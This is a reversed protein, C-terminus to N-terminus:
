KEIRLEISNAKKFRHFSSNFTINTIFIREGGNLVKRLEDKLIKQFRGGKIDKFFVLENERTVLITFSDVALNASIGYHELFLIIGPQALFESKSMEKNGSGLTARPPTLGVVRFQAEGILTSDKNWFVKVDINGYPNQPKLFFSGNPKLQIKLNLNTHITIESLLIKGVDIYM